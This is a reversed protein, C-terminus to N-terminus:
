SRIELAVTAALVCLSGVLVAVAVGFLMFVGLTVGCLALVQVVDLVNM